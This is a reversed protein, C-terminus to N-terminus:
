SMAAAFETIERGLDPGAPTYLLETVGSAETEAAKDRIAAPDGVWSMTQLLDPSEDLVPRDRETLHTAHGDHVVLHRDGETSEAEIRALWDEGGPMSAAVKPSGEWMAHQMIMAWAGVAQKVRESEPAEGADLVTGSVMGIQWDWGPVGAAMTMLGDAIEGAIAQGKPGLASVILPVDIPRDVTMGPWHMMRMPAGDVSVTDGRLLGRLTEIYDRVFAWKLASGGFTWRASAGTGFAYATRGPSIDEITAIASATVMVHRTHPVLVATGLKIRDTLAAVQGLHIWVDEYLSPSDYLWVRDYGLDEALRAYELTRSSPPLGCSLKM